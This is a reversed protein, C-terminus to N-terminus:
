AARRSFSRAVAPCRARDRARGSAPSASFRVWMDNVPAAALTVSPEIEGSPLSRTLGGDSVSNLSRREARDRGFKRPNGRRPRKGIAEPKGEPDLLILVGCSLVRMRAASHFSPAPRERSTVDMTESTATVSRGTVPRSSGTALRGSTAVASGANAEPEKARSSTAPSLNSGDVKQNHALRAAAASGRLVRVHPLGNGQAIFRAPIAPSGGDAGKRFGRDRVGGAHRAGTCPPSLAGGRDSLLHHHWAFAHCFGSPEVRESTHASPAPLDDAHLRSCARRLDLVLLCVRHVVAQVTRHRNVLNAAGDFRHRSAMENVSSRAWCRMRSAPMRSAGAESSFARTVSRANPPTRWPSTRSTPGSRAASRASNPSKKESCTKQFLHELREGQCGCFLPAQNPWSAVGWGSSAVCLSLPSNKADGTLSSVCFEGRSLIVAAMTGDRRLYSAPPVRHRLDNSKRSTM